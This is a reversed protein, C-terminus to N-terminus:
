AENKIYELIKNDFDGGGEIFNMAIPQYWLAADKSFNPALRVYDKETTIIYKLKKLAELEQSSFNHHDPFSVHNFELGLSQYYEILPKPNAIGTVLTFPKNKFQDISTTGLTGIVEKEYGISAFFLLQNPKINLKKKIKIKEESSIDEPCKTVIIVDARNAGKRPERLNGTPLVIDSSYLDYYATLLIYFGAKVKRHQYADDLIILEPTPTCLRLEDIGNRRDADVGVTIDDFKTKFQLPEDGVEKATSSSSVLQFGKTERKYGRSLTALKIKDKCLRILYEVMPSKGTGGVSLNGVAIIYFDYRKSKKIGLDYMRNRLWTVIYYIPVIPLLIKRFLNM